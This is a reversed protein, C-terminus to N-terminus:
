NALGVIAAQCEALVSKRVTEAMAGNIPVDYIRVASVAYHEELRRTMRDTLKDMSKWHNTLIAVKLGALSPVTPMSAGSIDRAAAVPNLIKLM